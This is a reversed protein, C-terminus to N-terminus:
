HSPLEILEGGTKRSRIVYPIDAGMLSADYKFGRGLLLDLSKDSFNYLPARWGRPAKGTTKKIVEIGVDLWHSEDALTQELPNEHIYSHHAIEHGGRLITEVAGPYQEICWAPIFFTQKIGLREYTDVIRPIAILPGYRLMSIAAVRRNGDRPYDVHILSDADMDFTLCAACKAGNPWKIANSLM